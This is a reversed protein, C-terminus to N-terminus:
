VTNILSSTFRSAWKRVSRACTSLKHEVASTRWLQHSCIAIDPIWCASSSTRITSVNTQNYLAVIASGGLPAFNIKVDIGFPIQLILPGPVAACSVNHTQHLGLADFDNQCCCVQCNRRIRPILWNGMSCSEIKSKWIPLKGPSKAKPARKVALHAM